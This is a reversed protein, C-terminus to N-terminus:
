RAWAERASQVIAPDSQRAGTTQRALAHRAQELPMVIHPNGHKRAAMIMEDLQRMRYAIAGVALSQAEM